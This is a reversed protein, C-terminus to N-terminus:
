CISILHGGPDYAALRKDATLLQMPEAFATAILLRDFPDAHLTPLSEVQSLAEPAIPLERFGSQIFIARIDSVPPFSGPYKANKIAIEWLSAVSVFAETQAASLLTFAKSPLAKVKYSAWLAIHTDLLLRM